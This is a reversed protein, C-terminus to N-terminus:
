LHLFSYHFLAPMCVRTSAHIIWCVLIYKCSSTWPPSLSGHSSSSASSSPYVSPSSSSSSPSSAMRIAQSAHIDTHVSCETYVRKDERDRYLLFFYLLYYYIHFIFFHETVGSFPLPITAPFIVAWKYLGPITVLRWGVLRTVAGCPPAPPASLIPVIGTTSHHTPCECVLPLTNRTDYLVM